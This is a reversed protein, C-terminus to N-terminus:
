LVEGETPTGTISAASVWVSNRQDSVAPGAGAALAALAGLVGATAVRRGRMRISRSVTPLGKTWRGPPPHYAREPGRECRVDTWQVPITIMVGAHRTSVRAPAGTM